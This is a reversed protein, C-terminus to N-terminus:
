RLEDLEELDVPLGGPLGLDTRAEVAVTGDPSIAISAYGTQLGSEAQVYQLQVTMAKLPTSFPTSFRNFTPTEEVGGSTGLQNIVTWTVLDGDTNWVVRPPEQDHRHGVNVIGPPLDAIGDEAPRRVGRQTAEMDSISSLGLFGAATAPQHVLVLVPGDVPVAERLQEGREHETIGTDNVVSGGFLTKFAPDAAGAVTLGGVEATARDLVTVGGEELQTVTTPSDHDGKVAVTAVEPSATAEAQVFGAEAVTGNSSVDGSITRLVVTDGLADDLLRYLEVRVGTAVRSGQPDAEALVVVEGERPVLDEALVPVTRELESVATDHFQDARERIRTTNKEVFPRIQQAVERTQPSSFSLADIGPMAYNDEVPDAGEWRAFLVAAIGVSGALAVAVYAAGGAARRGRNTRLVGPLPPPRGRFLAVLLLGGILAAVTTYLVTRRVMDARLEAGYVRAVEGPDNVFAANTRLFRPTVYSSLTGGAEPPGTVEIRAGFGGAGTREWYVDGMLGTDVTSYGNHSLSVAVPFTGLQDAFEAHEVARQVCVPLAVLAAVVLYGAFAGVAALVRRVRGEGGAEPGTPRQDDEANTEM